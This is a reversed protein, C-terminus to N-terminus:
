LAVRWHIPLNDNDAFRLGNDNAAYSAGVVSKTQLTADPLRQNYIAFSKVWSNAPQSGGAYSGLGVSARSGTFGSAVTGVTGGGLVISRASANWSVGARIGGTFSSTGATAAALTPSSSVDYTVAVTNSNEFMFAVGSAGGIIIGSGATAGPLATMEVIAAGAIGQLATLAPGTFQAVDAARTVSAAATPIYSTAFSGAEFQAGSVLFSVPGTQSGINETYGVLFTCVAAAMTQTASVPQYSSTLTITAVTGVTTGNFPRVTIQKGIDAVDFAKVWFTGTYPASTGTFLQYVIEEVVYTRNDGSWSHDVGNSSTFSGRGDHGGAKPSAKPV